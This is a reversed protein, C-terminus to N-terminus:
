LSSEYIVSSIEYVLWGVLLQVVVVVSLYVRDDEAPGARLAVDAVAVTGSTGDRGPVGIIMVATVTAIAVRRM